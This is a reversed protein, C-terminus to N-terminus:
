FLRIDRFVISQCGDFTKKLPEHKAGALHQKQILM